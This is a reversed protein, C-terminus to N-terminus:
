SDSGCGQMMRAAYAHCENVLQAHAIEFKGEEGAIGFELETRANGNAVYALVAAEKALETLTMSSLTQARLRKQALDRGRGAIVGFYGLSEGSPDIAYLVPGADDHSACVLTVDLPRTLSSITHAHVHASLCSQLKRLPMDQGFSTRYTACESRALDVLAEGEPKGGTESKGGFVDLGKTGSVAIGIRGGLNHLGGCPSKEVVLVIGCNSRLGIAINGSTAATALRLSGDEAFQNFPLATPGSNVM